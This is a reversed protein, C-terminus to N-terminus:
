MCRPNDTTPHYITVEAPPLTFYRPDVYRLDLVFRATDADLLEMTGPFYGFWSIALPQEARWGSGGFRVLEAGCHAFLDFPYAVGVV